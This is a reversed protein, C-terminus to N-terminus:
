FSFPGDTACMEWGDRGADAEKEAGSASGGLHWERGGAKRRGISKWCEKGGTLNAEPEWTNYKSDRGEWKVHYKSGARPDEDPRHGV